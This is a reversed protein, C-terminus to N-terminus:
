SSIYKGIWPLRRLDALTIGGNLLLITLYCGLGLFIQILIIWPQTFISLLRFLFMMAIGASLPQLLFRPMDIMMGTYRILAGLNLLAMIIYGVVYAAATGNLGWTAQATLYYLIPIRLLASIISHFVPLYFKGLGQLIGTTTQQLYSFIGGLALIRLIPAVSASKFFATLPIAFYFLILLCPIGILITLRIAESSRAKVVQYQNRASAESIAPVLSTALAFTFVSPFSFLTFAAGGLQGFLTTAERATYGAIQLRQPILM